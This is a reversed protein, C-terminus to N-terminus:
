ILKKICKMGDAQWLTAATCYGGLKDANREWYALANVKTKFGQFMTAGDVVVALVFPRHQLAAHLEKMKGVLVEM